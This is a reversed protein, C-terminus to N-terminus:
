ERERWLLEVSTAGPELGVFGPAIGSEHIFFKIDQPGIGPLYGGSPTWTGSIPVGAAVFQGNADVPVTVTLGSGGASWVVSTPGVPEGTNEHVVTGVVRRAPQLRVVVGHADQGEDLHGVETIGVEESSHASVTHDHGPRTSIAFHGESDTAIPATGVPERYVMAGAAPSGDSALVRGRITAELALVMDVVVSEGDDLDYAEGSGFVYGDANAYVNFRRDSAVGIRYTGDPRTPISVPASFVEKDRHAEVIGITASLPFGAADTVTGEVFASAPRVDLTAELLGGDAPCQQGRASAPIHGAVNATVRYWFDPPLEAFVAQGVADTTGFWERITEYNEEQVLLLAVGPAEIGGRRVVVSLSCASRPPVEGVPTSALTRITTVSDTGVSSNNAPVLVPAALPASPMPVWFVFLVTAFAFLALALLLIRHRKM